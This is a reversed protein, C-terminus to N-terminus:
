FGKILLRHLCVSITEDPVYFFAIYTGLLAEFHLANWLRLAVGSFARDQTEM